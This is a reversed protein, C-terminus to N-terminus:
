QEDMWVMHRLLWHDLVCPGGGCARVRECVYQICERIHEKTVLVDTCNLDGRLVGKRITYARALAELTDESYHDPAVRGMTEWPKNPDEVWANVKGKPRQALYERTVDALIPVHRSCVQHMKCIGRFHAGPDGRVKCQWGLKYLCRGLTRSWYYRGDVPLPRHGLYVADELRDSCYFKASFGFATLNEIARLRFSNAQELSCAPLRGLADDGCVSLMLDSGIALLDAKGVEQLPKNLWAATVSLLMAVGNLVANAFATDDRGSANFVRGQFKLDGIIGVPSRWVSLVRRFDADHMHQKYFSEVFDWTDLNHSSDFMSYDSWFYLSAGLTVLRDLWLQLHEPDTGGYFILNEPNWQVKLWHMYPRIKRGAIVHTVDHPANILRAVVERLPILGDGDKDFYPLFEDKLFCHFTRYKDSWGSRKYLDYAELLARRRPQPFGALWEEDSQEQPPSDILPFIERQFSAAWAWLGRRPAPPANFVRCALAAFRNYNTAATLLPYAGSIIPGIARGRWLAPPVQCAALRALDSKEADIWKKGKRRRGSAAPIASSRIKIQGPEWNASDWKKQKPPLEIGRICVIGPNGDCCQM